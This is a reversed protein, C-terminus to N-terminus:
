TQQLINVRTDNDSRKLSTISITTGATSFVNVSMPHNSCDLMQGPVLWANFNSVSDCTGGFNYYANNAGANFIQRTCWEGRVKSIDPLVETSTAAAIVMAPIPENVINKEVTSVVRLM